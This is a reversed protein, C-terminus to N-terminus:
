PCAGGQCTNDGLNVGGPSVTAGNGGSQHTIVLARYGAGGQVQLGYAATTSGNDRLAGDSVFSGDLARVGSNNFNATASFNSLAGGRGLDIGYASNYSSTVGTASTGDGLIVGSGTNESAVIDSARGSVGLLIGYSGNNSAVIDEASAHSGLAVGNGNATAVIDSARARAGSLLAFRNQRLVARAIRGHDGVRIGYDGNNAAEIDSLNCAGSCDLGHTLNGIASVNSASSRGGLLVGARGNDSVQVDRIEAADALAVGFGRSGVVRGNAVTVRPSGAVISAFQFVFVCSVVWGGPGTTCSNDGRVTMGNLDLNVDAIGIVIAANTGHTLNSTLRYSGSDCITVPFGPTDCANVGGALAKTQNIEIVGDGAHAASGCLFAAIYACVTRRM